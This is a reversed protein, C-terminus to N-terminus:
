KVILTIFNLNKKVFFAYKKMNKLGNVFCDICYCHDEFDCIRIVKKIEKCILCKDEKLETIISNLYKLLKEKTIKNTLLLDFILFAVYDTKTVSKSINISIISNNKCYLNELNEALHNIIKIQNNVRLKLNKMKAFSILFWFYLLIM